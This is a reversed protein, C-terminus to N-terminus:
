HEELLRLFGGAATMHRCRHPHPVAPAAALEERVDLGAHTEKSINLVEAPKRFM